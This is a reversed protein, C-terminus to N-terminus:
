LMYFGENIYHLLHSHTIELSDLNFMVYNVDDFLMIFFKIREEERKKM